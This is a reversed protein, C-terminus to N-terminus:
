PNVDLCGFGDIQVPICLPRSELEFWVQKGNPSTYINPTVDYDEQRSIMRGPLLGAVRPDPGIPLPVRASVIDLRTKKSTMIVKDDGVYKTIVGTQPHKYTDPYGWVELRYSGVWVYGQFTAGSDAFRPAIQGVEIRPNEFQAQVKTDARFERLASSGMTVKDPDIQGDARIVDALSELDALKTSSASSWATSVTPFHTTKPVFDLVYVVTGNKDTLSLKGTQLIQSAQLEVGRRIKNSIREAGSMIKAILDSAYDTYAASYPDVGAIRNILECVDVMIAEGYAPPTFEKTTYTDFDNLNPGTCKTVVTAVDEGGRVIDIAVKDGNFAGGPKM